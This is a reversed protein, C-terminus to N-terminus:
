SQGEFFWLRGYIRKDGNQIPITRCEITKTEAQNVTLQFTYEKQPQEDMSVFIKTWEAESLVSCQGLFSLFESRTKGTFEEENTQFLTYFNENALSVLGSRDTIVVGFPIHRLLSFFRRNQAAFETTRDGLSLLAEQLEATRNHLEANSEELQHKLDLLEKNTTELEQNKEEYLSLTQVLNLNQMRLEESLTPNQRSSFKKQLFDVVNRALNKSAVPKRKQLRITTGQGPESEIAISDMLRKMAAIGRLATQSSGKSQLLEEQKEETLGPGQDNGEVELLFTDDDTILSFSISGGGGHELINKGLEFVSTTVQLQQTVDFGLEECILRVRDRASLIDKEDQIEHSYIKM